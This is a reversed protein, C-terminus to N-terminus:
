ITTPVLFVSSALFVAGPLFVKESWYKQEKWEVLTCVFLLYLIFYRLKSFVNLWFPLSRERLKFVSWSASPTLNKNVSANKFGKM